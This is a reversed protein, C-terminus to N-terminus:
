RKDCAPATMFHLHIVAATIATAASASAHSRRADVGDLAGGDPARVSAFALALAIASGRVSSASGTDAYWAVIAAASSSVAYRSVGVAAYRRAGPPPAGCAIGSSRPAPAVVVRDDKRCQDRPAITSEGLAPAGRRTTASACAGCAITTAPSRIAHSCRAPSPRKLTCDSIPFLARVAYADDPLMSAIAAMSSAIKKTSRGAPESQRMPRTGNAPPAGENVGSRLPRAGAM